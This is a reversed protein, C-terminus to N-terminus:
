NPSNNNTKRYSYLKCIVSWTMFRGVLLLVSFITNPTVLEVKDQEISIPFWGHLTVLALQSGLKIQREKNNFLNPMVVINYHNDSVSHDENM